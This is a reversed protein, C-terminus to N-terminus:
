RAATGLHPGPHIRVYEIGNIWVTFVPPHTQFYRELTDSWRRMQIRRGYTVIYDADSPLGERLPEGDSSILAALIDYSHASVRLDGADPQSRLWAAAQDLGEGNGVMVLRQAASGGGLLPNFYSLTYPQVVALPAAMVAALAAAFAARRVGGVVHSSIWWWGITALITLPGFIPLLYRDFKKPGLTMMLGFGLVFLLLGAIVGIVRSPLPGADDAGRRVLRWVAWIAFMMLGLSTFLSLRFAVAVPYFLPGPDGSVTGLFFSGVEDPEGGTERTFAVIRSFVESPGLAWLAPWCLVYTVGTIALWVGLTRAVGVLTSQSGLRGSFLPLVALLPVFGLLFIAPSKSLLALGTCAGCAVLAPRGGGASWRCIAALVALLCFAALPGDVHVLQGNAVSFPDLALALGGVLGPWAGLVHALVLAAVALAAASLVAFGVRARALGDLYGPVRGVYRAGSVRDAFQLAGSPGQALMAIWMTTVGPHGNQYTRGLQGTVLGFTFGGARRM